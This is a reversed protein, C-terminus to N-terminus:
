FWNNLLALSRKMNIFPIIWWSSIVTTLIYVGITPVGFKMLFVSSSKYAYISGLVIITPSKLVVSESTSQDDLCFTFLFVQFKISV